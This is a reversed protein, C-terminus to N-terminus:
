YQPRRGSPKSYRVSSNDVGDNVIDAGEIDDYNEGGLKDFWNNQYAMYLGGGILALGFLVGIVIGAIAGGSVASTGPIDIKWSTIKTPNDASYCVYTGLYSGDLPKVNQLQSGQVSFKNPQLNQGGGIGSYFTKKNHTWITDSASEPCYLRLSGPPGNKQLTILQANGNM